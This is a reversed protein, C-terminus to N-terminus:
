LINAATSSAMPSSCATFHADDAAAWSSRCGPMAPRHGDTEMSANWAPVDSWATSVLVTPVDHQISGVTEGGIDVGEYLKQAAQMTRQASFGPKRSAEQQLTSTTFPPPPTRRAAEERGPCGHLQLGSRRRASAGAPGRINPRVQHAERGEHKVLRAPFPEAGASVDAEVTWYERTRFREIELERDVILRLAVSQVRGALRSGTAKGM